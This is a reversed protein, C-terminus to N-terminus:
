YVRHLVRMREKFGDRTKKNFMMPKGGNLAWFCIEPHIERIKSRASINNILFTDLERIKPIIGFTWPSVSRGTNNRNIIKVEQNTTAYIAARCPTVFVSPKRKTTLLARAEKDCRREDPNDDRMGIPVDILILKADRNQNWLSSIEPFVRVKWNTRTNLEVVIWGAKCGDVGVFV